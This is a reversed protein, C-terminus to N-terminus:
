ECYLSLPAEVAVVGIRGPVGSLLFLLLGKPSSTEGAGCSDM